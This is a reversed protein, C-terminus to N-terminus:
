RPKPQSELPAFDPGLKAIASRLAPEDLGSRAYTIKGAADILVFEPVAGPAFERFIDGDTDHFNSWPEARKAWFEAATQADEDEDVSILSFGKDSAEQYIKEIVPFSQVCPGCWTAWFDLLVPKGRFASLQLTKGDTTQLKIDPAINGVFELDRPKMPDPFEDVLKAEAPLDLKFTEDAFSFPGLKTIPYITTEDQLLHRHPSNMIIGGEMHSHMKRLLHTQRDIWFTIRRQIDRSGGLYRQKGTIVYCPVHKGSLSLTEDELFIPRVIDSLAAPLNEVLSQAEYLQFRDQFVPEKLPSPGDNPASNQTYMNSLRDLMWETHGDSVKVDWERDSHTEFRYHNNPALTVETISKNWQHSFEGKMNLEKVAQIHYYKAQRYKAAVEHLLGAPDPKAASSPSQCLTTSAVSLLVLSRIFRIM